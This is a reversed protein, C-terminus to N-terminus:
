FFLIKDEQLQDRIEKLRSWDEIKMVSGRRDIVSICYSIAIYWGIWLGLLIGLFLIVKRM